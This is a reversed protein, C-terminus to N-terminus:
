ARRKRRGYGVLGVLGTGLLLLTSPEPVATGEVTLNDYLGVGENLPAGNRTFGISGGVAGPVAFSTNFVNNANLGDTLTIDFIGTAANISIEMHHLVNAAPTFGMNFNGTLGAIRFAGGPYLPHFIFQHQGIFLGVNYDGGGPVAGVDASIVLDGAFGPITAFRHDPGAIHVVGNEVSIPIGPDSFSFGPYTSEFAAKGNVDTGFQESFLLTAGAQGAFLMALVMVFLLAYGCKWQKMPKM